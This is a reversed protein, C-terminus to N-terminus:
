GVFGRSPIQEIPGLEVARRLAEELAAESLGASTLNGRVHGVIFGNRGQEYWVDWQYGRGSSPGQGAVWWYGSREYLRATIVFKPFIMLSTGWVAKGVAGLQRRVLADIQALPLADNDHGNAEAGM